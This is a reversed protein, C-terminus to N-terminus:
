FKSARDFFYEINERCFGAIGVRYIVSAVTLLATQLKFGSRQIDGHHDSTRNRPAIYVDSVGLSFFLNPGLAVELM